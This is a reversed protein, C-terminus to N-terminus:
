SVQFHFSKKGKGAVEGSKLAADIEAAVAAATENRAKGVAEEVLDKASLDGADAGLAAKVMMDNEDEPGVGMQVLSFYRSYQKAQLQANSIILLAAVLGSIIVLGVKVYVASKM